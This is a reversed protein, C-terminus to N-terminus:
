ATGDDGDGWIEQAKKKLALLAATEALAKDKRRLEKELERIRKKEKSRKRRTRRDADPGVASLISAKWRELDASKLGKRRLFAGLEEEDMSAAQTVAGLREEASWEQPRRPTPSDIERSTNSDSMAEVKAKRLWRSLTAQSVGTRRALERASVKDPGCLKSVMKRRFTTSYQM